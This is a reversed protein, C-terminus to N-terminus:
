NKMRVHERMLRWKYKNESKPDMDFVSYYRLLQTSDQPDAMIPILTDSMNGKHIYFRNVPQQWMSDRWIFLYYENFNTDAPITNVLLLDKPSNRLKFLMLKAGLSEPLVIEPIEADDFAITTTQGSSDIAKVIAHLTDTTGLYDGALGAKPLATRDPPLPPTKTKHEKCGLFLLLLLLFPWNM